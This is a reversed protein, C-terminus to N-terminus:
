FGFFLFDLANSVDDRSAGEINTVFAGLRSRPLAAM